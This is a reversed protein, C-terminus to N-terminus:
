LKKNKVIHGEGDRDPRFFEMWLYGTSLIQLCIFHLYENYNLHLFVIIKKLPNINLTHLGVCPKEKNLNQIKKYVEQNLCV